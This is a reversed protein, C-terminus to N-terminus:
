QTILAQIKIIIEKRENILGNYVEWKGFKMRMWRFDARLKQMHKYHYFAFLGTLPLSIIFALGLLVQNFIIFSLVILLFYWAMFSLLGTGFRISSIFHPDKINRALYIPIGYPLYNLIM